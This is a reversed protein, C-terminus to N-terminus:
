YYNCYNHKSQKFNIQRNAIVALKIMLQSKYIMVMLYM